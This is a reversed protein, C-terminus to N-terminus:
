RKPGLSEEGEELKKPDMKGGDVTHIRMGKEM